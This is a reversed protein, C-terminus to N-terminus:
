FFTILSRDSSRRRSLLNNGSWNRSNSSDDGLQLFFILLLHSSTSSSASSSRCHSACKCPRGTEPWANRKNKPIIILTLARYREEPKVMASLSRAISAIRRDSRIPSCHSRDRKGPIYNPRTRRAIKPSLM